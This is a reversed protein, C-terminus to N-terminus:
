EVHIALRNLYEALQAARAKTFTGLNAIIKSDQRSEIVLNNQSTLSFMLGNGITISVTIEEPEVKRVLETQHILWYEEGGSRQNRCGPYTVYMADNGVIRVVQAEQGIKAGHAGNDSKIRRVIDGPEFKMLNNKQNEPQMATNKSEPLMLFGALLATQAVAGSALSAIAIRAPFM